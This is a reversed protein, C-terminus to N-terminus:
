IQQQLAGIDDEVQQMSQSSLNAQPLNRSTEQIGQVLEKKNASERRNTIFSIFNTYKNGLRSIERKTCIAGKSELIAAIEMNGGDIALYLAGKKNENHWKMREILINLHFIWVEQNLSNKGIM